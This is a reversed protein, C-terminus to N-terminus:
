NNQSIISSYVKVTVNYMCEIWFMNEIGEKKQELKTKIEYKFLYIFTYQTRLAGIMPVCEM